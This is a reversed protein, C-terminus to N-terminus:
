LSDKNHRRNSSIKVSQTLASRNAEPLLLDFDSDAHEIPACHFRACAAILIDAAPVTVGTSRAQRAIAYALEWVERNIELEPLTREFDRLIKKDRDGRAGNWLELRILPCWCADGARLLSEVRARVTKDGDTRLM